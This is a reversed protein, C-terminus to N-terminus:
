RKVNVNRRINIRLHVMVGHISHRRHLNPYDKSFTKLLHHHIVIMMMTTTTTEMRLPSFLWPLISRIREENNSHGLRRPRPRNRVVLLLVGSTAYDLQHIWRMPDDPICTRNSVSAISAILKRHRANTTYEEDNNDAKSNSNNNNGSSNINNNDLASEVRRQHLLSPPPYLYLLLKHVTAAHPGDMRLDPPKSLVIYNADQYVVVRDIVRRQHEDPSFSSPVVHSATITSTSSGLVRLLYDLNHCDRTPGGWCPNDDVVLSSSSQSPADSGDDTNMGIRSLRLLQPM